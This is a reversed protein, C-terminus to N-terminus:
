LFLNTKFYKYHMGSGDGWRNEEYIKLAISKDNIWTLNDISWDKSYYEFSSKIAKLGKDNTINFGIIEARNSYYNEYDPGDYSSYIIFQNCSPSLLLGLIGTDYNSPLLMKKGSKNEVLYTECIEKCNRSVSLGYESIFGGSEVICKTKYAKTYREYDDKTIEKLDLELNIFSFDELITISTDVITSKDFNINKPNHKLDENLTDASLPDINNKTHGNCSIFGLVLLIIYLINKM